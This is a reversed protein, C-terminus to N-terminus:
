ENLQKQHKTGLIEGNWDKSVHTPNINNLWKQISIFAGGKDSSLGGHLDNPKVRLAWHSCRPFDDKKLKAMLENIITKGKHTFKMGWLFVEYSDINPHTHEKILTNPECIFLQVQYPKKRYLTIGAIGDIFMLPNDYPTKIINNKLYWNKFDKLEDKSKTEM